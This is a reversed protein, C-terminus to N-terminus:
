FVQTSLRTDLTDTIRLRASSPPPLCPHTPSHRGPQTPRLPTQFTHVSPITGM